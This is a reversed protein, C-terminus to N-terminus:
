SILLAKQLNSFEKKCAGSWYEEPIYYRRAYREHPRMSYDSRVIFENLELWALVRALTHNNIKLEQLMHERSHSFSGQFRMAYYYLYCYVRAISRREGIKVANLANGLTFWVHRPMLCTYTNDEGISEPQYNFLKTLTRRDINTIFTDNNQTWNFSLYRLGDETDVHYMHDCREAVNTLFDYLTLYNWSEFPIPVVNFLEITKM